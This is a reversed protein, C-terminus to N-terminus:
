RHGRGSELVEPLDPPVPMRAGQVLVPIVHIDRELATAIELRVLDEPNELRKRGSGDSAGLWERGIIAILADCSGVAERVVDVFDLGPHIADVDMFVQGQGFPDILRDYLRGARGGSDDRRYSIFIKPM